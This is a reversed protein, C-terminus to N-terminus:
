KYENIGSLVKIDKIKATLSEGPKLSSFCSGDCSNILDCPNECCIINSFNSDKVYEFSIGSEISLKYLYISVNDGLTLNILDYVEKSISSGIIIFEYYISEPEPFPISNDVGNKYKLCQFIIDKNIDGEKLEIISYHLNHKFGDNECCRDARIGLIDCRGYDGLSLQRYYTNPDKDQYGQVRFSDLGIDALENNKNKKLMDFIFDELERETIKM